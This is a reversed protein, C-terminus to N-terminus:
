HQGESSTVVILVQTGPELGRLKHSMSGPYQAYDGARLLVSKTELELELSGSIIYLIEEGAHDTGQGVVVSRTFSVIFAGSGHDGARALAFFEYGDSDGVQRAPRSTARVVHLLDEHPVEGLLATISTNLSKSLRVLSAVSLSKEGREFRSLHGKSLGVEAALQELTLKRRLRLSRVFEGPARRSPRLLKDKSPSKFV